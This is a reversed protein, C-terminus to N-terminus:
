EERNNIFAQKRMNYSGLHDFFEAKAAFSCAVVDYYIIIYCKGFFLLTYMATSIGPQLLEALQVTVRNLVSYSPNYVFDEM